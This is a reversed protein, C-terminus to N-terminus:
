PLTRGDPAFLCSHSIVHQIRREPDRNLSRPTVAPHRSGPRAAIRTHLRHKPKTGMRAPEAGDPDNSTESIPSDTHARVTNEM